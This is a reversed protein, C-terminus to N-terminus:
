PVLDQEETMFHSSKSRFLGSGKGPTKNFEFGIEGQTVPEGGHRAQIFPEKEPFVIDRQNNEAKFVGKKPEIPFQDIFDLAMGIMIIEKDPICPVKVQELSKESITMGDPMSSFYGTRM